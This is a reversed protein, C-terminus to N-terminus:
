FNEVKSIAILGDSTSPFFYKSIMDLFWFYKAVSKTKKLEQDINYFVFDILTFKHQNLLRKLTSFSFYYVHDPHVYEKGLHTFHYINRFLCYSNVTTIILKTNNNKIFERISDLFLGPNSIHEIIEGALIIDFIGLKDYIDANEINGLYINCYGANKMIEIGEKSLDLGVVKSSIKLLKDHLFLSTGIRDKTFPYDSCGLHLVKKGRCLELIYDVRQVSKQARYYNYVERLKM